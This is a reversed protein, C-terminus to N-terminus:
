SQQLVAEVELNVKIKDGVVAGGGDMPLNIDIGFDRRNIETEASFAIRTGGWPDRTTGNLEVDLDVQRTVGHLSLEGTVLYRDGRQHVGTSVYTMTPYREVDLFDASRIHQDRQDSRTDVSALDITATASSALADEAITIEGSFSSFVGRVKAVVLHRATFGVESHTTDIAYTGAVLGPIEVPALTM